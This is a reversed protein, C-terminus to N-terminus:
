EEIANLQSLHDLLYGQIEVRLHQPDSNTPDLGPWINSALEYLIKVDLLPLAELVNKIGEVSQLDFNYMSKMLSTTNVAKHVKTKLVSKAVDETAPTTDDTAKPDFQYNRTDDPGYIFSPDEEDVYCLEKEIKGDGHDIPYEVPVFDMAVLDEETLPDDYMTFTDLHPAPVLYGEKSWKYTVYSAM